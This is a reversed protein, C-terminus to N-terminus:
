TKLASRKVKKPYPHIIISAFSPYFIFFILFMRIPTKSIDIPKINASLVSPIVLMSIKKSPQHVSNIITGQM